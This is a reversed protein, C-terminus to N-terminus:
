ERMKTLDEAIQTQAESDDRRLRDTSSHSESRRASIRRCTGRSAMILISIALPLLTDRGCPVMTVNEGTTSELQAYNRPGPAANTFGTKQHESHFCSNTLRKRCSATRQGYEHKDGSVMVPIYDAHRGEPHLGFHPGLSRLFPGPSTPNPSTSRCDSMVLSESISAPSSGDPISAMKYTLSYVCLANAYM